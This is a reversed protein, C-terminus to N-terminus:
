WWVLQESCLGGSCRSWEPCVASAWVDAAYSHACTHFAGAVISAFKLNSAVPKPALANTGSSGDGLQGENNRSCPLVTPPCSCATRPSARLHMGDFYPPVIGKCAKCCCSHDLYADNPYVVSQGVVRLWACPCWSVGLVVRLQQHHSRVCPQGRSCDRQFHARRDRSCAYVSNVRRRVRNTWLHFRRCCTLAPQAPAQRYPLPCLEATAQLPPVLTATEIAALCCLM